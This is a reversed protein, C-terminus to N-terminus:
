TEHVLRSMAPITRFLISMDLWFSRQQEYAIDFRIMETFTTNNKGNVQWLGTMGPLTDFRRKHWLLYEQYEYPLCPRPGVLSMDGRLVNIIQPLEDLCTKRLLKGIFPIIQANGDDLKKMPVESKILNSVYAKHRSSDANVKMTRFKWFTFSRGLHGIRQQRFLAPGPSVAKIVLTILLSLPLTLILVILSFFIDCVRKWVPIPRALFREMGHVFDVLRARPDSNSCQELTPSNDEVHGSVSSGSNDSGNSDNVHHARPPFRGESAPEILPLYQCPYTYITCPPPELAALKELVDEAVKCASEYPTNFLLVGIRQVDIWGVIDSLRVRSLLLQALDRLHDDSGTYKWLDFVLLSFTIESRDARARERQLCRHFEEASYIGYNDREQKNRLYPYILGRKTLFM